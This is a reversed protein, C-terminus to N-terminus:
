ALHALTRNDHQQPVKGFKLQIGQHLSFPFQSLLTRCLSVLLFPFIVLTLCLLPHTHSIKAQSEQQFATKPGHGCHPGPEFHEARENIRGIRSLSSLGASGDTGNEAQM